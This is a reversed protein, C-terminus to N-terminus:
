LFDDGFDDFDGGDDVPQDFDADEPEVFNEEIADTDNGAGFLDMLMHGMVVGGAVGAATQLAGGLFGGSRSSGRLANGVEARPTERAARDGFRGSDAPTSPRRSPSSEGAGFLGALFGGSAPSGAEREIKEVRENLRKLAEEQILITQAMYYPAHPQRELRSRIRAEADSDREGTASEAQELRDFLGDILRDEEQTTAM